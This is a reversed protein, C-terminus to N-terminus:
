PLWYTFVFTCLWSTLSFLFPARHLAAIRAQHAPPAPETRPSSQTRAPVVRVQGAHPSSPPTRSCVHPCRAGLITPLGLAFVLFNLSLSHILITLVLGRRCSLGPPAKEPPASSSYLHQRWASFLWYNTAQAHPRTAPLGPGTHMQPFCKVPLAWSLRLLYIRIFCCCHAFYPPFLFM